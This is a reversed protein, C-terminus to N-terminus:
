SCLYAKTSGHHSCQLQLPQRFPVDQSSAVNVLSSISGMARTTIPNRQDSPMLYDTLLIEYSSLHLPKSNIQLCKQVQSHRVM